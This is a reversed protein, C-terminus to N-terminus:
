LMPEKEITERKRFRKIEAETETDLFQGYLEQGWLKAGASILWLKKKTYM